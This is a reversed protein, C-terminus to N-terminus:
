PKPQLAVPTRRARLRAARRLGAEDFRRKEDATEPLVPAVAVPKAHEDLAVFTLYASPV